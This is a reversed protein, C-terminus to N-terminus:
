GLVLFACLVGELVQSCCMQCLYFIWLNNPKLINIHYYTVQFILADKVFEGLFGM